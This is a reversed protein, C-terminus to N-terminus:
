SKQASKRFTMGLRAAMSPWKQKFWGGLKVTMNRRFRRVGPFDISLILLGVPVMWYGLVPLFGFIGAIVFVVGLPVRLWISRPMPIRKGFLNISKM